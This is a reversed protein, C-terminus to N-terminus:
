KVVGQFCREKEEQKDGVNVLFKGLVDIYQELLNVLEPRLWLQLQSYM